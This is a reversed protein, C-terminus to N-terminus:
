IRHGERSKPLLSNSKGCTGPVEFVFPKGRREGNVPAESATLTIRLFKAPVPEFRIVSQNNIGKGKTVAKTWNTGDTSLEIDYEKPYTTLPPPANEGWGRRITS